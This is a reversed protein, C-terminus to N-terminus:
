VALTPARDGGSMLKDYVTCVHSVRPSMQSPSPTGGRSEDAVGDSFGVASRVSMEKLQALVATVVDSNLTKPGGRAEIMTM